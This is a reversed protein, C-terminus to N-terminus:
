TTRRYFRDLLRDRWLFALSTRLLYQFKPSSTSCRLVRLAPHIDLKTLRDCITSVKNLSTFLMDSSGKELIPTGLLKHRQHQISSSCKVNQQIWNCGQNTPFHRSKKSTLLHRTSHTSCRRYLDRSSKTRVLTFLPSYSDRLLKKFWIKGPARM